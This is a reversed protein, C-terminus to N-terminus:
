GIQGLLERVGVDLPDDILGLVVLEDDDEVVAARTHRVGDVADDLGTSGSEMEAVGDVHRFHHRMNGSITKRVAIDVRSRGQAMARMFCHISGRGLQELFAGLIRVEYDRTAAINGLERRPVVNVREERCLSLWGTTM